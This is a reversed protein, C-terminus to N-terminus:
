LNMLKLDIEADFKIPPEVLNKTRRLIENAFSAGALWDSYHGDSSVNIGDKLHFKLISLCATVVLDYPKRATKCFEFEESNQSFHERFLFTEHANSDKGNVNIGGYKGAPTHASYGSLSSETGKYLKYYAKIIKNCDKIARQYIFEQEDTRGKIKNINWYHTYGM